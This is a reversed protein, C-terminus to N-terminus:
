WSLRTVVFFSENEFDNKWTTKTHTKQEINKYFFIIELNESEFYFM